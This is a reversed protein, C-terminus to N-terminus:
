IKVRDSTFFEYYVCAAFGGLIIVFFFEEVPFSLDFLFVWGIFHTGTYTWHNLKLGILEFILHIYFFFVSVKFFNTIFSPYKILFTMIPIIFVIIGLWLYSYPFSLFEKNVLFIIILIISISYFIYTMVKIRGSIKSQFKADLFYEYFILITYVTLFMWIYNELPSFGFFRFPFISNPVTWANDGYNLLEWIIDFPISILFSFIAVKRAKKKNKITLYLSPIAFILILSEFYNIRLGSFFVLLFVILPILLIFTLDIKKGM